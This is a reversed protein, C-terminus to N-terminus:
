FPPLQLNMRGLPRCPRWSALPLCSPLWQRGQWCQLLLFGQCPITLIQSALRCLSTSLHRCIALFLVPTTATIQGLFLTPVWTIGCTLLTWEIPLLPQQRSWRALLVMLSPSSLVTSMHRTACRFSIIKCIRSYNVELSVLMPASYVLRPPYGPLDSAVHSCFTWCVVLTHAQLSGQDLYLDFPVIVMVRNDLLCQLFALFTYLPPEMPLNVNYVFVFHDWLNDLNTGALDHLDWFLLSQSSGPRWGWYPFLGYLSSDQPHCAM